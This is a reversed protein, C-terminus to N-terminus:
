NMKQYKAKQTENMANWDKAMVQCLETMKLDPHKKTYKARVDNLFFMYGSQARKPVVSGTLQLASSKTEEEVVKKSSKTAKQSSKNTATSKQSSTVSVQSLKTSKKM